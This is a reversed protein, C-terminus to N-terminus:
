IIGRHKLIQKMKDLWEDLSYDLKMHNCMTCCSVCNDISYGISSDIRDIGITAVESGCYTCPVQWFSSFEDKTLNFSLGRSKASSRYQSFKGAINNSYLKRQEQRTEKTVDRKSKLKEKIEPKNRYTVDSLHSCAKCWYDLGDSSNKRTKFLEPEKEVNCKTCVKTM